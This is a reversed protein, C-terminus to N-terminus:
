KEHRIRQTCRREMLDKILVVRRPTCEESGRSCIVLHAVALIHKPSNSAPVESEARPTWTSFLLASVFPRPPADWMGGAIVTGSGAANKWRKLVVKDHLSILQDGGGGKVFYSFFTLSFVCAHCDMQQTQITRGIYYWGEADIRTHIM